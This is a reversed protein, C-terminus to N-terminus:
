QVRNTLTKKVIEGFYYQDKLNVFGAPAVNKVKLKLKLDGDVRRVKVANTYEKLAKKRDTSLKHCNTEDDWWFNILSKECPGCSIWCEKAPDGSIYQQFITGYPADLMKSPSILPNTDNDVTSVTIKIM